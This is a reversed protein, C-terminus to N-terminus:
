GNKEEKKEKYEDYIILLGWFLALFIYLVGLLVWSNYIIVESEDFLYHFFIIFFSKLIEFINEM